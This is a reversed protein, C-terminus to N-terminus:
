KDSAEDDESDEIALANFRGAVSLLTHEESIKNKEEGSTVCESDEESEDETFVQEEDQEVKDETLFSSRPNWIGTNYGNVDIIIKEDTGPPWFSWGIKGEALLRLIYNGARHIDPRAAKATVWGRANANAILIDMGTWAESKSTGALPRMGERWTRKDEVPGASANPHNLSLIRELPLVNGSFHICAPVASIRSIPLIGCLVQLEMPIFNPMVLGPCDVFCIDRTWFLTQFHKTKGPTKSAKVKNHGFLANLLSSKGVNPQGILGVTLYQLDDANDANASKEPTDEEITLSTTSADNSREGTSTTHKILDWDVDRKVPPKWTQLKALDSRVNAAPELLEVHANKIAEVLNDRCEAPIYPEFRSRGQDTTRNKEIYSEVQIIQTQPYRNRLFGIWADVCVSGAIDVKTLVFIVKHNALHDHLSPPYHLLPCRSDLLVLIIQSIETVRWLQRWVELNREFYSPSRPPNSVAQQPGQFQPTDSEQWIRLQEDTQELWKKFLGEENHEVEKKSMDFRWKPRRPCTLRPLDQRNNINYLAKDSPIPRPLPVTSAIFKTEELFKPPLKIFASQLRKVSDIQSSRIKTTQGRLGGPKSRPVHKPEPPPADGRKVARRLKQEAKKQRTSTPKRRAPM